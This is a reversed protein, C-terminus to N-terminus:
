LRRDQTVAREYDAMAIDEIDTTDALGAASRIKRLVTIDARTFGKSFKCCMKATSRDLTARVCAYCPKFEILKDIHRVLYRTEHPSKASFLSPDISLKKLQTDLVRLEDQTYVHHLAPARLTHPAVNRLLVQVQADCKIKKRRCHDCSPGSRQRRASPQSEDSEPTVFRIKRQARHHHHAPPPPTAGPTAAPTPVTACPPPTRLAHKQPETWCLDLRPAGGRGGGGQAVPLLLPVGQASSIVISPMGGRVECGEGLRGVPSVLHTAVSVSRHDMRDRKPRGVQEGLSIMCVYIYMPM